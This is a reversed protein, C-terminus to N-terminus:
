SHLGLLHLGLLHLGLIHHLSTKQKLNKTNLLTKYINQKLKKQLNLIVFKIPTYTHVNKLRPVQLYFDISTYLEPKTKRQNHVERLKQINIFIMRFIM